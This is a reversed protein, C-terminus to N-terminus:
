DLKMVLIGNGPKMFTMLIKALRYIRKFHPTMERTNIARFGFRAYFSGLQARCTLYLPRPASDILHTIIMRAIGLRRYREEVAISALERSRDGHTKIQGCGAFDGDREAIVFNQWHLSLPNINVRRILDRIRTQDSEAAPRLTVDAM